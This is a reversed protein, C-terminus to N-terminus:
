SIKFSMKQEVLWNQIVFKTGNVTNQCRTKTRNALKSPSPEKVFEPLISKEIKFFDRQVIYGIECSDNDLAM